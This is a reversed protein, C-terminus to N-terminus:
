LGCTKLYSSLKFLKNDFIILLQNLFQEHHPEKTSIVGFYNNSWVPFILVALWLRETVGTIGVGVVLLDNFQSIIM